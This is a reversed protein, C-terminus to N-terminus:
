ASEGGMASPIKPFRIYATTGEGPTSEFSLGYSKGFYLQLREHVNRVGVGRGERGPPAPELLARLTDRDMGIGNDSVRLILDKGEERATITILGPGKKKKIGHYIANEVIPQLIVKITQYHKLSDDVDIQYDLKNKYRMKQIKLYNEIHVIETEVPVLEEGKSISARFLKALASTMQIVERTRNCEAMWIISDLTNYLFHPNIQAQLANLESKRKQEQDQVIQWMLERIKSVMINFAHALKSTEFTGSVPVHIDFNGKEVEQMSKQLRKIPQIIRRSLFLSLAVAIVICAIGLLFISLQIQRQNGVLENEYAVGVIKWGFGSDKVIYMRRGGDQEGTFIGNETELVRDILETKLNSYILQQQPHYVINGAPDVIFLYGRPGLHIDRLMDNLVSFNLDILLIGLKEGDRGALELSLSVVWPYRDKFVPQVHPPSIVHRGAAERAKQYWDLTTPDINPNLELDKRGSVFQGNYGFISVSSIDTRSVMMSGLFDSVLERYDSEEVADAFQRISLFNQVVYSGAALEAMDKMGNVYARINNNVQNVLEATYVQVNSKVAEKTLYYSAVSMALITMLILFTFALAMHTQISRFRLRLRAM